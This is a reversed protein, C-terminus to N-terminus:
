RRRDRHQSGRPGPRVRGVRMNFFPVSLAGLIAIGVAAAIWRRRVVMTAWRIWFRSAASEKRIRPWDTRPGTGGLLAPLLTMTVAVSVLPILMGAYGVSRLFPVPIIVLAVLGVAVTLGSFVVAHGATAAAAIMADENERGHAREERWRTVLLLSYDIAVGLGILAVLFQVLFSVDAVTTLALLILFTSLISVAAVLLPM